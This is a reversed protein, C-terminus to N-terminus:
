RLVLTVLFGASLLTLVAVGVLSWITMLRSPRHARPVDARHAVIHNLAATLPAVVFATITIFDIFASFNRMMFLLILIASGGLLAIMGYFLPRRDIPAEVLGSPTTLTIVVATLTRPMGDMVTILTTFMVCLAAAGVLAGSWAGLSATYLGIVQAAFPGPGGAPQVGEAHMVGAGMLVFCVALVASGIYGINFDLMADSPAPRVGTARAKAVAWQSQLMSLSVAAPMFGMLAIMFAFTAFDPAPLGIQTLDWEIKPLALATAALTSVTLIAVFVKTMWDLLRYGGTVLVGGAAIIAAVAVHRADMELNFVVLAIAATTIASAAIIIAQVAVESLGVLAVVWRGLGRYGEILSKGTAAAYYPGFRFTPYKVANALIVVALLGLGYVAGARTSQVLHSNGIAAGAFLVGPGFAKLFRSVRASM